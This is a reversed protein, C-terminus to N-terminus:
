VVSKFETGLPSQRDIDHIAQVVMVSYEKCANSIIRRLDQEGEGNMLYDRAADECITQFVRSKVEAM